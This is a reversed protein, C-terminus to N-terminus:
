IRDRGGAGWGARSGGPAGLRPRWHRTRGVARGAATAPGRAGPRERGGGDRLLPLRFRCPMRPRLPRLHGDPMSDRTADSVSRRPGRSDVLGRAKSEGTVYQEMDYRISVVWESM